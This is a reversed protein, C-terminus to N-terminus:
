AVVVTDGEVTATKAPLPRTSPGRAVSGDAIRFQSGHCACTILGADVSTVICGEHTCVADFAQFQGAEPQTVVVRSGSRIVGGGVPIDAVPIETPGSPTGGGSGPEGGGCAGLLGAAGVAGAGLLVARRTTTAEGM